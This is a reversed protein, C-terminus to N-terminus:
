CRDRRDQRPAVVAAARESGPSRGLRRGASLRFRHAWARAPATDSSRRRIAAYSPESRFEPVPFIGSPM